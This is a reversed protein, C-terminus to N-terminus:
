NGNVPGAGYSVIADSRKVRWRRMGSHEGAFVGADHRNQEGIDLAAGEMPFLIGFPHSGRQCAMVLHRPFGDFGTASGHQLHHAVSHVGREVIRQIRDTGRQSQLLGKGIRDRGLAEREAHAASHVKSGHLTAVAIEEAGCDVPRRSDHAHGVAALDQQGFGGGGQDTIAQLRRRRQAIEALDAQSAQRGGLPDVLEHMRRQAVLKRGQARQVLRRVVQGPLGGREHTALRIPELEPSESRRMRQHGEGAGAADALRAEGDFCRAVEKGREGIPDPEDIKRRLDLRPQHGLRDGANKPQRQTAMCRGACREHGIEAVLPAKDNEVIAFMEDGCAGLEGFGDYAGARLDRQHRRAALRQRYRTLADMRDPRERERTPAFRDGRFRRQAMRGDTEKRIARAGGARGEGHGLFVSRGDGPYAVPEIADRQRDFQRRRSHLHQRRSLYQRSQVVSEPDKRIPRAGGNGTM